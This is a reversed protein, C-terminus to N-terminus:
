AASRDLALDAAARCLPSGPHLHLALSPAVTEAAVALVFGGRAVTAFRWGAAGRLRAESGDPAVDFAVGSPRVTLGHGVAKLYAEKLTLLRLLRLRRLAPEDAGLVAREDASLAAAAVAELDLARDCRELDVGVRGPGDILACCVLGGAHTLNFDFRRRGREGAVHPRDAATTAFRWGSAPARYRAGLVARALARGAVLEGRAQAELLRGLRRREGADLQWELQTLVAASLAGLAAVWVDVRLPGGSPCLEASSPADVRSLPM